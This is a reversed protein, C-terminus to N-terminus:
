PSAYEAMAGQNSNVADCQACIRNGAHTVVMMIGCRLCPKKKKPMRAPFQVGYAYDMILDNHLIAKKNRETLWTATMIAASNMLQRGAGRPTARGRKNEAM